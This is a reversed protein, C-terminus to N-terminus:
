SVIERVGNENVEFVHAFGEQKCPPEIIEKDSLIKNFNIDRITAYEKHQEESPNMFYIDIPRDTIQKIAQIYVERRIARYLTHEVVVDHGLRIHELLDCKLDDYAMATATFYDDGAEDRKKQYEFLDLYIANPFEKQIFTTKGSANAGMVFKIPVNIMKEETKVRIAEDETKCKSLFKYAKQYRKLLSESCANMNDQLDLLKVNRGLHNQSVRNIYDMYPEDQRRSIADVAELINKSFGEESLNKLNCKTDEVVDHLVAVIQEEVASAKMMVRLPHLIANKGYMNREGRHWQAAVRIAIDLQEEYTHLMM